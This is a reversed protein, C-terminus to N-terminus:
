ETTENDEVETEEEDESDEAEELAEQSGKMERIKSMIEKLKQHAERLKEHAEKIKQNVEKMVEDVKGPTVAEVYKQKAEQWKTKAEDIKEGFKAILDELDTVDNGAEELKGVIRELKAELSESKAIIGGIKANLLRGVSKKLVVRTRKWANNITRAAQRIEENTSENDLNSIVDQADEIESIKEDINAIMESAEEETLDENSEVKSKLKELTQIVRDATNLLFEKSHGKVQRRTKQCEESDDERCERLAAKAQTLKQKVNQYREKATLYRQRATQYRERAQEVREKAIERAKLLRAKTPLVEPMPTANGTANVTRVRIRLPETSTPEGDVEQARIMNQAFAAPVLSFIMLAMLLVSIAKRM